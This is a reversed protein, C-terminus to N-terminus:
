PSAQQFASISCLSGVRTRKQLHRRMRVMSATHRMPHPAFASGRTEATRVCTNTNCEVKPREGAGGEYTMGAESGPGRRPRARANDARKAGRGNLRASGVVACHLRQALGFRKAVERGLANHPMNREISPRNRM